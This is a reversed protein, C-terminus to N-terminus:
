LSHESSKLLCSAEKGTQMNFVYPTIFSYKRISGLKQNIDSKAAAVIGNKDLIKM